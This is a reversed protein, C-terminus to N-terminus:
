QGTQQLLVGIFTQRWRFDELVRPDHEMGTSLMLPARKEKEDRETEIQKERDSGRLHHIYIPEPLLRFDGALKRMFNRLLIVIKFVDLTKTQM